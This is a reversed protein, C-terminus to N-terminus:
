QKGEKGGTAIVSESVKSDVSAVQGGSVRVQMQGSGDKQSYYLTQAGAGSSIQMSPEGFRRLLEAYSIGAKIGAADEYVTAPTSPGAVTRTRAVSSRAPATADHRKKAASDLTGDLNKLTGSIASAASKASGAVTAVGGSIASHEVIAQGALWGPRGALLLAALALNRKLSM